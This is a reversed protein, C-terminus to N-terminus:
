TPKCVTFYNKSFYSVSFYHYDFYRPTDPCTGTGVESSDEICGEYTAIPIAIVVVELTM